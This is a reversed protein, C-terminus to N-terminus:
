FNGFECMGILQRLKQFRFKPLPKTFIDAAQVESECHQVDLQGSLFKERVFKCRIDIHKTRNHFEPNKILRIASENDVQLVPVSCSSCLDLFLRHLWVAEKAAHSAAVFEAETTSLSICKQRRSAWTIAGGSYKFIMGSTSKRTSPDGAYDSDSFTELVKCSASSVYLIGWKSTGRLYKLVKKVLSWHKRLPKDLVQSLVSIAYAIDPRTVTALYMLSGVAKRYPIEEDLKVSPESSFVDKDIPVCVPNATSMNFCDLIKNCYNEQHVFISGDNLYEIQMGLFYNAPGTRVSFEDKLKELFSELLKEDRAAVIGDDVYIVLFLSKNKNVFLCPDSDTQKLDCSELFNRFRQNWCRPAQKLGYLSKLLKCVRETDDEYGQPQKMYIEESLEGYLFACKVDFQALKLNESAAISIVSRITDWRVVPSFTEHYDIGSKQSFGKVVLRAKFREIKGEANRKVKYVWRNEIAKRDEPLDVLEWTNNEALSDLEEQMAFKWKNSNVSNMAEQFTAPEDDEALMVFGDFRSPKQIESRDRLNVTSKSCEDIRSNQSQTVEGNSNSDAESKECLHEESHVPIKDVFMKLSTTENKFVIDRTLIVENKDPLWVRYGDRNGCYGVLYGKTAKKDFKRRRQKPIHVFCETGFIKLHDVSPTKKFWIEFPSKGEEPTPGTRNIVYAATSVAEGWLREPLEKAHLMTRAAEVLIRNEREAAGNQEPCYPMSVRHNLGAKQVIDHVESNNFEGGGDTLLEKLTYGATKVESLFKSLMEKVESKEKMLYVTRYKSYDDKFVVFYRNGGLSKEPMPGCVDAHILQGPCTPRDQRSGFSLRHMKGYMCADCFESDLKLEIGRHKLFNQVHRKNQHGMREHWLQLTDNKVAVCASEPIVVRMLLRYVSNHRVGVAVTENNKNRFERVQSDAYECLGNDLASGSSFLNQDSEPVYWVETLHGPKWKNKVLMEIQIEGTGQAFMSRGDGLRLPKPTEFQKYSSFWDLQSSIHHSAGSDIIWYDQSKLGAVTVFAQGSRDTERKDNSFRNSNKLTPCNRKLHGPHGCAYCKFKRNNADKHNNVVSKDPRKNHSNSPKVVFAVNRNEVAPKLEELRQEHLRLRETLSSLTRESNPVSEWANKFELYENPLTNLIRNLLMSKPLQVKEAKLEEQLDQWIRQLKSVHTAIDDMSDKKYNFLQSYLLDLRRENKQEYVSHLADWMQKGTKCTLIHQKPEPRVSSGIIVRAIADAEEYAKLAAAYAKREAETASAGHPEPKTTEGLVIPMAKHVTLQLEVDFKWSVWNREGELKEIFNLKDM